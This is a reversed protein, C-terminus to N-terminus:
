PIVVSLTAIPSDFRSTRANVTVVWEGALPFDAVAEYRGTGVQSLRRQLPGVGLEPQSVTVTPAAVPELPQGAGDFLALELANIGTTGPTIRVRVTGDGLVGDVTRAGAVTQAGDVPRAGTAGGTPDRTVLVGTIALVAVLLVAEARVTRRLVRSAAPESGPRVVRPVLRYRNWGAIGLLVAVVAVKALLLQGYTTDTLASWSGLIRWGLLVGALGLLAVAAAAAQSFGAVSRARLETPLEGSRDALVQWLGLVGGVWVAATVVHLLDAGLVLWAPGTSRTHGVVALAGLALAAGAFVAAAGARGRGPGVRRGGVAVLVVVVGAATLGAALGLDSGYGDRWTALSALASVEAADQWGTVVPPMVILAALALAGLARVGRRQRRRLAALADASAPGRVFAYGFVALGASALVGVYLVAETVPRLVRLGAGPEAVPIIVSGASPAGIAFSFGGAVPHSDASIVRYSVVYTGDTLEPPLDIVVTTDVSRASADLATGAADLLQIGGARLQVQENFTLTVRAPAEALLAGDAPDTGLLTAHAAAPGAPAALTLLVGLVMAPVAVRGARRVRSAGRGPRARRRPRHPSRM